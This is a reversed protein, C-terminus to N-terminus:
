EVNNGSNANTQTSDNNCSNRISGGSGGFSRASFGGNAVSVGGSSVCKSDKTVTTINALAKDQM